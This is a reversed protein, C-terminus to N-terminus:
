QSGREKALEEPSMTWFPTGDKTLRVKFAFYDGKTVKSAMFVDEGNIEAWVGKVKVRDGRKMGISAPKAFCVPCLHVMITETGSERVLLAVGPEMGPLPVVEKVRVVIGKFSDMEAAKYHKNYPSGKGWGGMDSKEEGHPVGPISLTMLPILALGMLIYRVHHIRGHEVDRNRTM